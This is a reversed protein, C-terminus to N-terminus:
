GEAQAAEESFRLFRRLQYCFESLAEFDSKSLRRANPM